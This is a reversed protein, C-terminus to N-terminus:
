GGGPGRGRGLGGDPGKGPGAGHGKGGGPGRAPADAGPGAPRPDEDDGTVHTAPEDGRTGPGPAPEAGGDVVDQLEGSSADADGTGDGEPGVAASGRSRRAEDLEAATRRIAADIERYRRVSVADAEVAADLAARVDGLAETAADYREQAAAAAVAHVAEQLSARADASLGDTDARGCGGLLLGCTVAVALGARVM